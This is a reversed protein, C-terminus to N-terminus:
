VVFEFVNLSALRYDFFSGVNFYRRGIVYVQFNLEVINQILFFVDGSLIVCNDPIGNSLIVKGKFLKKFQKASKFEPSIPGFIHLQRLVVRYNVGFDRSSMTPFKNGVVVVRDPRLM